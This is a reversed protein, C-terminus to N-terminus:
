HIFSHIKFVDSLLSMLQAGVLSPVSVFKVCRFGNLLVGGGVCVVISNYLGM